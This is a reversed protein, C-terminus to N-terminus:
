GHSPHERSVLVWCSHFQSEVAVLQGALLGEAQAVFQRRQRTPLEVRRGSCIVVIIIM